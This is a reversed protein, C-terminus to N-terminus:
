SMFPEKGATASFLAKKSLKRPSRTRRAIIRKRKMQTKMM